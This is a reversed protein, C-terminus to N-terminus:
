KGEEVTSVKGTLDSTTNELQRRLTTVEQKFGDIEGELRLRTQHGQSVEDQLIQKEQTLLERKSNATEMDHQHQALLFDYRLGNM